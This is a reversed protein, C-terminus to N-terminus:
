HKKLLFEILEPLIKQITEGPLVSLLFFIFIIAVIYIGLIFTAIFIHFFFEAGWYGERIGKYFAYLIGPALCLGAIRVVELIDEKSPKSKVILYAFLGILWFGYLIKEVFKADDFAPEENSKPTSELKKTEDEM